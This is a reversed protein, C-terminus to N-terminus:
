RPSNGAHLRRSLRPLLGAQAFQLNTAYFAFIVRRYRSWRQLTWATVTLVTLVELEQYVYSSKSVDWNVFSYIHRKEDGLVFNRAWQPVDFIAFLLV